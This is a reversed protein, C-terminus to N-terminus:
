AQGKTQNIQSLLRAIQRRTLTARRVNTETGARIDRRQSAMKHRLKTLKDMDQANM